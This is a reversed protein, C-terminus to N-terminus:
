NMGPSAFHLQTHFKSDLYIINIQLRVSKYQKAFQKKKCQLTNNSILKTVSLSNPQNIEYVAPRLDVRYTVM